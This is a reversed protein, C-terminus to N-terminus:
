YLLTVCCLWKRREHDDDFMPKLIKWKHAAVLFPTDTLITPIKLKKKAKRTTSDKGTYWLEIEKLGALAPQSIDFPATSLKKSARTRNERDLVLLPNSLKPAELWDLFQYAVPKEL